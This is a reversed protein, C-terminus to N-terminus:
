QFTGPLDKNEKAIKLKIFKNHMAKFIYSAWYFKGNVSRVVATTNSGYISEVVKLDNGTFHTPRENRQIKMNVLNLIFHQITQHIDIDRDM